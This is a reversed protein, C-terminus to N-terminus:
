ACWDDDGICLAFDVLCHLLLKLVVMFYEREVLEVESPVACMCAETHVELPAYPLSPPKKCHLGAWLYAVSCLVPERLQTCFVCMPTHSCGHLPFLVARKNCVLLWNIVCTESCAQDFSDNGACVFGYLFNITVNKEQGREWM